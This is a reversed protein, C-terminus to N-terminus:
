QAMVIAPLAPSPKAPPQELAMPTVEKGNARALQTPPSSEHFNPTPYFIGAKTEVAALGLIRSDIPVPDMGYVQRQYSSSYGAPLQYSPIMCGASMLAFAAAAVGPAGWFRLACSARRSVARHCSGRM